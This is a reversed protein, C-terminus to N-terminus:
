DRWILVLARDDGEEARAADLILAAGGAFGKTAVQEAAGLLRDIGLGIDRGRTEVLGDTYLLLGDGPLM